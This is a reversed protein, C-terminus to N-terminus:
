YPHTQTHWQFDALDFASGEGFNVRGLQSPQDQLPDALPQLTTSHLVWGSLNWLEVDCSTRLLHVVLQPTPM